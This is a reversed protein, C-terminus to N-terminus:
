WESTSPIVTRRKMREVRWHMWLIGRSFADEVTVVFTGQVVYKIVCLSGTDERDKSSVVVEKAYGSLEAMVEGDGHVGLPDFAMVGTVM